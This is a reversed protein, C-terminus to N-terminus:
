GRNEEVDCVVMTGGGGIGGWLTVEDGDVAVVQGGRVLNSGVPDYAVPDAFELPLDGGETDALYPGGLSEALVLRGDMLAAVRPDQENPWCRERGGLLNGTLACGALLAVSLALSAVGVTRRGFRSSTAM